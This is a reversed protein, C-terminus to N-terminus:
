DNVPEREPDIVPSILPDAVPENLPDKIPLPEPNVLIGPEETIPILEFLNVVPETVAETLTPNNLVKLIIQILNNQM